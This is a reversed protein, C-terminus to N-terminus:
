KHSHAAKRLHLGYKKEAERAEKNIYAVKEVVTMHKTDEYIEEQIKHIMRMAEPEKSM